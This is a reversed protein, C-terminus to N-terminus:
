KHNTKLGREKLLKAYEEAAKKSERKKNLRAEWKKKDAEIKEETILRQIKPYKMRPKGGEKKPPLEKGIVYDRVDDDKTLGFLRRIKSARKPGYQRPIEKDTLGEIDKEGEELITMSLVSIEQSVICGRVSKRKRTGKRKCRYGTDGKRLLCRVRDRTVKGESMPFGQKDCGGTIQFLYGKYDEHLGEGDIEDAIRKEYLVHLKKEDNIEIIKQTGKRPNAINLKM